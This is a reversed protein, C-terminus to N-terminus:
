PLAGWSAPEIEIRRTGDPLIAIRVEIAGAPRETRDGWEVLTVEREDDSELFGLEALEREGRVRYLDFHVLPLRGAYRAAMTFTPSLVEAQIGLGRAVGKAFQTKGAGLDGCLVVVEGGALRAGLDSGLARTEEASRSHRVSAAEVEPREPTM